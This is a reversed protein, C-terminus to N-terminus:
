ASARRDGLRLFEIRYNADPERSSPGAVLIATSGPIKNEKLWDHAYERWSSPQEALQVPEVGHSFVLGQCVLPDRSLAVIWMPPNFRSIM